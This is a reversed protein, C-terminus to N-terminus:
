AIEWGPVLPGDAGGAVVLESGVRESEPGGSLWRGLRRLPSSTNAPEAPPPAPADSGPSEEDPTM